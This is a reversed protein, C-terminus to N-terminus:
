ADPETERQVLSAKEADSLWTWQERTYYQRVCTPLESYPDTGALVEAIVGNM